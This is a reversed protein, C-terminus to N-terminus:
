NDHEFDDLTRNTTVTKQLTASRLVQMLSSLTNSFNSVHSTNASMLASSHLIQDILSARESAEDTEGLLREAATNAIMLITLMMTRSTLILITIVLTMTIATDPYICEVVGIMGDTLIAPCYLLLFFTRTIGNRVRRACRRVHHTM